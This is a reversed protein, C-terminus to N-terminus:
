KEGRSQHELKRAGREKGSENRGGCSKRKRGVAVRALRSQCGVVRRRKLIVQPEKGRGTM